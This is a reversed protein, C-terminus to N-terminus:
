LRVFFNAHSKSIKLFTTFLRCFKIFINFVLWCLRKFRNQWLNPSFKLSNTISIQLKWYTFWRFSFKQPLFSFFIKKEKEVTFSFNRLQDSRTFIIIFSFLPYMTFICFVFSKHVLLFTDIKNFFFCYFSRRALTM